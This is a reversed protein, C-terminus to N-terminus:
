SEPQLLQQILAKIKAKTETTFTDYEAETVLGKEKMATTTNWLDFWEAVKRRVQEVTPEPTPEPEPASM